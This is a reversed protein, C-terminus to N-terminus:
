VTQKNFRDVKQESKKNYTSAKTGAIVNEKM